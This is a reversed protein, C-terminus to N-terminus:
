LPWTLPTPMIFPLPTPMFPLWVDVAAEFTAFPFVVVVVIIKM